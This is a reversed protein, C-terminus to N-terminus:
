TNIRINYRARPRNTFGCSAASTRALSGRTRFMIEMWNFYGNGADVIRRPVPPRTTRCFDRGGDASTLVACSTRSKHPKRVVRGSRNVATRRRTCDSTEYQVRLCNRIASSSSSESHARNVLHSFRTLSEVQFSVTERQGHVLSKLDLSIYQDSSCSYCYGFLQTSTPFFMKGIPCM